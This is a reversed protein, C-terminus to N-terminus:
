ISPANDAFEDPNQMRNGHLLSGFSLHLVHLSINGMVASVIAALAHYVIAFSLAISPPIGFLTLALVLAAHMIGVGSPVALIMTGFVSICVAFIAAMPTVQNTFASVGLYCALVMFGWVLASLGAAKTVKIPDGMLALGDLGHTVRSLVAALFGPVRSLVRSEIVEILVERFRGAMLLMALIFALTLGLITAIGLAAEPMNPVFPTALLFLLVVTGLDMLRDVVIVSLVASGRKDSNKRIVMVIFLEGARLPLIANLLNGINQIHFIKSFPFSLIVALRFSRISAAVVFCVAMLALKGWDAEAFARLVEKLDSQFAVIAVLVGALALGLALRMLMKKM